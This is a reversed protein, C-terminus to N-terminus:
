IFRSGNQCHKRYYNKKYLLAKNMRSYESQSPDYTTCDNEKGRVRQKALLVGNVTSNTMKNRVKTKILNIKSFIRESDANSHPLSITELVFKSLNKFTMGQDGEECELLVVSSSQFLENLKTFKPLIFDLFLYFLKIIPNNLAQVILEVSKLRITLM